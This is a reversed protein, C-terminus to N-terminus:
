SLEKEAHELLSQQLADRDKKITKAIFFFIFGCPIWWFVSFNMIFLYGFPILLGGIAPGFGQGLNDTINFVAFVSGRHEPRNVNMLIAKVNASSVAIMFGTIFALSYFLPTAHTFNLNLLIFAPIVGVVIGTGCLIPLNKPNKKYLKEGIKAFIIAGVTAGAGLALFGSTASEKSFHRTEELFFIMWYGLIGWPITGPIGQLFTLLNTKNSFIIKFDSLKIRPKYAIGQEMLKELANETRGREPEKAYLAFIIAIPINPAAALIFSIRWGYSNTLYGALAPGLMMGLAWALGLWAAASARHEENFYDSILSFSIPYIGGIGIGTLIRLFAFAEVTPTFFKIGTLLCPIEGVLVTIILLNKRSIKDTFYGFFISVFAGVIIFGSGIFSLAKQGINYEKSLEPLIASMIRQDAFLFVSMAVLLILTIKDRTTMKLTM